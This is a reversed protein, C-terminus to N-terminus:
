LSSNSERQIREELERVTNLWKEDESHGYIIVSKRDKETYKREIQGAICLFRSYAEAMKEYNQHLQKLLPLREKYLSLLYNGYANQTETRLADLDETSYDPQKMVEEVVESLIEKKSQMKELEAKLEVARDYDESEIAGQVAQEQMSIERKLDDLERIKQYKKRNKETGALEDLREKIYAEFEQPTM